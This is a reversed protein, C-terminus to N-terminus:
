VVSKRDAQEVEFPVLGSLEGGFQAVEKVLSSSLFSYKPDTFLLLTEIKPALKKNMMAINQEFVYDQENRLSRIITNAKLEIAVNVTLDSAKVMVKVNPLEETAQEIFTQRQESTFMPKKSTNTMIVVYLEDFIMASRKIVDLHGNTVPDFSGPFIARM